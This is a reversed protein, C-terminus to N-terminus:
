SRTMDEINAIAAVAPPMAPSPENRGLAVLLAQSPVSRGGSRFLAKVHAVAILRGRREFRQEIYTWKDDWCVLRSILEYRQFPKLQARYRIAVAGAVPAWRNKVITRLLGTRAILDFRGLDMISLYRGNNMHVNLDLDNPWVVFRVRSEDLIDIRRRFCAAIVVRIMRLILNM